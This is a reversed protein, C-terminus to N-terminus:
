NKVLAEGLLWSCSSLHWMLMTRFRSVLLTRWANTITESTDAFWSASHALGRTMRKMFHGVDLLATNAATKKSVKDEM